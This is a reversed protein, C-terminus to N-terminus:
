WDVIADAMRLWPRDLFIPYANKNSHMKSSIFPSWM